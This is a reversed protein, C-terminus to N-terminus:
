STPVTSYFLLYRGYTGDEEVAGYDAVIGLEWGRLSDDYKVWTDPEWGVLYIFAMKSFIAGYSSHAPASGVTRTIFGDSFIPINFLKDAGRWYQKLLQLQFDQPFVAYSAGPTVIEDVIEHVTYPHLVSVMPNPCPEDQGMCQTVAAMFYDISFTSTTGGLGSDLGSFLALLDTDIKKAMANGIVKGAARYGDEKLDHRLKRTIIVKCGAEDTTHTTGTISLTQSDSMDVGDILDVAEIAGFKPFFKSKEGPPLTVRTVLNTMPADHQLTYRADGVMAVSGAALDAAVTTAM